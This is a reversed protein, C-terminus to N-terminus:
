APQAPAFRQFAPEILVLDADPGVVASGNLVVRRAPVLALQPAPRTISWRACISGTGDTVATELVGKQPDIRLREVIGAVRCCEYPQLDALWTSVGQTLVWVQLEFLWREATAEMGITRWSARQKSM